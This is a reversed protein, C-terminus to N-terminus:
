ACPELPPTVRVRTRGLVRHHVVEGVDEFGCKGFVSLSAVNKPHVTALACRCGHRAAERVLFRLAVTQCGRRRFAELTFMDYIGAAGDVELDPLGEDVPLRFPDLWAVHALAGEVFVGVCLQGRRERERLRAGYHVAKEFGLSVLEAVEVKRVSLPVPPEPPENPSVPSSLVRHVRREFLQRAGWQAGAGVTAAVGRRRLHFRLSELIRM